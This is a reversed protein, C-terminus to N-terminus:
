GDGEDQTKITDAAQYGSLSNWKACVLVPMGLGSEPRITTGLSTHQRTM